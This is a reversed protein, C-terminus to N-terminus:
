CEVRSLSVAPEGWNQANLRSEEVSTVPIEMWNFAGLKQYESQHEATVGISKLHVVFKEALAEQTFYGLSIRFSGDEVRYVFHELNKEKLQAAVPETQPRSAYPGLFVRTAQLERSDSVVHAFTIGHNGMWQMAERWSDDKKFPGLRFCARAAGTEPRDPKATTGATEPARDGADALGPQSPDATEGADDAPLPTGVATEGGGETDPRGVITGVQKLNGTESLLLMGERNVESRSTISPDVENGQRGSSWLYVAVNVILLMAAIWKM